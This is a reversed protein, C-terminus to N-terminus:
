EEIVRDFGKSGWLLIGKVPLSVLSSRVRMKAKFPSRVLWKYSPAM